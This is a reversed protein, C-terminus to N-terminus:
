ESGLDLSSYKTQNCKEKGYDRMIQAELLDAMVKLAIGAVHTFLISM